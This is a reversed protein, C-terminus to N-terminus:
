PTIEFVSGFTTHGDGSTTGYLNDAQDLVLGAYPYADPPTKFSYLVRCRWGGAPTPRLRFIVGYDYLGGGTATGYLNGAADFTLSSLPNNGDNGNFSYLVSQTWSGDGNPMLEFVTGHTYKGGGATTGYLNGAADFTLGGSPGGGDSGNFSHLVRQRWSGDRKPTLRFVTGRGYAGGSAATGYLNGAADFILGANPVVGHSYLTFNHLVSETWSGDGNPTLKFVTGGGRVGFGGTGGRSTTGYLNGAADFILSANPWIGDDNHRSFSHLVHKTWSGDGNPTLQFVTGCGYGHNCRLYGGYVTTGYLNGAADFILAGHPGQGDSGNFSHLVSETWSGDGNPALQFVTGCGYGHNCRLHGGYVTTGYLNGAADFILGAYPYYGQHGPTNKFAHLTKYRDGAWAGSGLILALAMSALIAIIFRFVQKRQMPNDEKGSIHTGTARSMAVCFKDHAM